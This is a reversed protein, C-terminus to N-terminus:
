LLVLLVALIIMSFAAVFSGVIIAGVLSPVLGSLFEKDDM